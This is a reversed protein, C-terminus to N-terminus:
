TILMADGFSYFRYGSEMAVKYAHLIKERGSFASVLMLLTSRPLHFNTVLADVIRFRFGPLIFLNTQGEFASTPLGEATERAATELIRTSTTGVAVIRGGRERVAQLSEAAGGSVQGWESHIPHGSPDESTVPAFTDLGIHLTVSVLTIGRRTLRELLDHTFHLGATPAAASGAIRAYITQYDGPDTLPRHIYPPLPAEGLEELLPSVPQNFRIRRRSQGLDDLIEAELGHSLALRIGPRLGKGGVLAEWIQPENRRLLLLEAKGGTPLKRARLRARIVRTDNLVLADGPNLLELLDRFRYHALDGTERDLHLLRSSDRPHAPEQAIREPPLHYGFDSTRM